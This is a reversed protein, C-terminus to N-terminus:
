SIAVAVRWAISVQWAIYVMRNWWGGLQFQIVHGSNFVNEFYIWMMAPSPSPLAVVHYWCCGVVANCMFTVPGWFLLVLWLVPSNNNDQFQSKNSPIRPRILNTELGKEDWFTRKINHLDMRIWKYEMISLYVSCAKHSTSNALFLSPHRLIRQDSKSGDLLLKQAPTGDTYFSTRNQKSLTHHPTDSM